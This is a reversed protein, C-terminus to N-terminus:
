RRTAVGEGTFTCTDGWADAGEWTFDISETGISGIGSFESTGGIIWEWCDDPNCEGWDGAYDVAGDVVYSNRGTQQVTGVILDSTRPFTGFGTFTEGQQDFTVEGRGSWTGNDEPDTCNRWTEQGTVDWTGSIGGIGIEVVETLQWSSDGPQDTWLHAIEVAVLGGADESSEVVSGTNGITDTFGLEESLAVNLPDSLLTFDVELDEMPEGGCTLEVTIGSSEGPWMDTRETSVAMEPPQSRWYVNAVLTGIIEIEVDLHKISVDVERIYDIRFEVNEIDGATRVLPREVGATGHDFLMFIGVPAYCNYGNVLPVDLPVPSGLPFREAVQGAALDFVSKTIDGEDSGRGSMVRIENEIDGFVGDQYAELASPQLVYYSFHTVAGIASRGDSEVVAFFPTEEWATGDGDWYYLRLLRGPEQAITLPITVTVPTSFTLGHPELSVGGAFGAPDGTPFLGDLGSLAQIAVETGPPIESVRIAVSAGGPGIFTEEEADGVDRASIADTSAPPDAIPEPAEVGAGCAGVLLAAVQAAALGRM